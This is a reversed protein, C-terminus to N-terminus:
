HLSLSSSARRRYVGREVREFENKNSALIFSVFQEPLASDPLWGKARLAETVERSSMARDGMVSALRKKLPPKRV